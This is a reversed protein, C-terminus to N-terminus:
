EFWEPPGYVTVPMNEEPNYETEANETDEEQEGDFWDPPGYVGVNSNDDPNYDDDFWEPPGYVTTENNDAPNYDDDFWDPPGYVDENSNDDPNYDDDFWEPPGYVTTENNDAPNYDDWPPPGYVDYNNNYLPNFKNLHSSVPGNSSMATCMLLLWITGAGVALLLWTWWGSRGTDHLRRVNLSVFPVLSVILYIVLIWSIILFINGLTEGQFQNALLATVLTIVGIAANFLVPFWYERRSAKSKYDFIKRWMLGYAKFFSIKENM